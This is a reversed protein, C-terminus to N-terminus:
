KETIATGVSVAFPRTVRGSLAEAFSVPIGQRERLHKKRKHPKILTPRKMGRVKM